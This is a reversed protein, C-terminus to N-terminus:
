LDAEILAIIRLKEIVMGKGKGILVNFVNLWKKSLMWKKTIHKTCQLYM